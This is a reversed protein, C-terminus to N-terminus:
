GTDMVHGHASPRRAQEVNGSASTSPTAVHQFQEVRQQVSVTPARLMSGSMSSRVTNELRQRFNASNLLSSVKRREVLGQVEVIIAEPRHNVAPAPENYQTSSSTFFEEVAEKNGQGTVPRDGMRLRRLEFM